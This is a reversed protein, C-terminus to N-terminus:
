TSLHAEISCRAHWLTTRSATMTQDYRGPTVLDADPGMPVAAFTAWFWFLKKLIHPGGPMRPIIKYSKRELHLLLRGSLQMCGYGSAPLIYVIWM